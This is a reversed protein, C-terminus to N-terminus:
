VEEVVARVVGTRGALVLACEEAQERTGFPGFLHGASVEDYFARVNYIGPTQTSSEGSENVTINLNM